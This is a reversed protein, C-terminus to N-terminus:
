QACITLTGPSSITMKHLAPFIPHHDYRYILVGVAGRQQALLVKTGRFIAGYRVVVVRDKV